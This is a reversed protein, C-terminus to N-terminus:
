LAAQEALFQQQLEQLCAVCLCTSYDRALQARLVPGINLGFCACTTDAVGCRFPESCRPCGANLPPPSKAPATESM